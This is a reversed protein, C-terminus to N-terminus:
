GAGIMFRKAHEGKEYVDAPRGVILPDLVGIHDIDKDDCPMTHLVYRM